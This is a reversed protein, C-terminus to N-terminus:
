RKIPRVLAMHMREYLFCFLCNDGPFYMKVTVLTPHYSNFFWLSRACRLHPEKCYQQSNHCLVGDKIDSPFRFEGNTNTSRSKKAQPESFDCSINFFRFLARSSYRPLSEGNSFILTQLWSKNIHPLVPVARTNFSSISKMVRQSSGMCPPLAVIMFMKSSNLCVFFQASLSLQLSDSLRM